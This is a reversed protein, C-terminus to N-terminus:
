AALPEDFELVRMAPSSCRWSDVFLKLTNPEIHIILAGIMAGHMMQPLGLPRCDWGASLIQALWKIEAVGTYARIGSLLGYEVLGRILTNRAARGVVPRLRPSVCLRTVERM